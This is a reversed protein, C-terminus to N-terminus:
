KREDNDSGPVRSAPILHPTEGAKVHVHNFLHDSCYEYSGECKSCYRFELEPNTIETRGCICCRHLAQGQGRGRDAPLPSSVHGAQEASRRGENVSQRFQRRRRYQSPSFRGFRGSRFYLIAINVLAAAVAFKEPVPGQIIMFLLYAVDFIGLWRVKIPIIFFLLVVADPFTMAYALFISMNIYYTSFLLSYVRYYSGASMLSRTAADIGAVSTFFMWIFSFAVTLVIGTLIFVNYRYDGWVNELSKGISYYFFLMVAIFFLNMGSMGGTSPPVLLWSVLRWVQGHIIANPDLTLFLIVNGNIFEIIYGIIYLIILKLSLNSIAYRGFKKEFNSM